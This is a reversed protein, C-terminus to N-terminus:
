RRLTWARGAGRTRGSQASREALWREDCWQDDHLDAAEERCSRCRRASAANRRETATPVNLRTVSLVSSRWCDASSTSGWESRGRPAASALTMATASRSSTRCCVPWGAHFCWGVTSPRTSPACSGHFPGPRSADVGAVLQVSVVQAPSSARRRPRCCSWCRMASRGRVPGRGVARSRGAGGAVATVRGRGRRRPGPRDEPVGGDRDALRDVCRASRAGAPGGHRRPGRRGAREVVM